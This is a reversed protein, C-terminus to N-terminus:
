GRKREKTQKRYSVMLEQSILQVAYAEFESSPHKEGIKDCHEQWIHMAEHVLLANIQELTKGKAIPMCVIAAASLKETNEFFHTTANSHYTKQFEIQQKIGLRKLEAKFERENLCLRYSLALTHCDRRLWHSKAM